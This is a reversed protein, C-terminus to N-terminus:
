WAAIVAQSLEKHGLANPHLYDAMERATGLMYKRTDFIRVNLGDGHLLNASNRIVQIYVWCLPDHQTCPGEAGKYYQFPITGALVTPMQGKQKGTPAGVAVIGTGEAGESTQEFTVTHTGAPVEAIRVFGLARTTGNRTKFQPIDYWALKGEHVGDLAYSFTSMSGSEIEPWAYIPGAVATSITFTVTAGRERTRWVKWNDSDDWDVAGEHKVGPDGAMVKFERPVALWSLVGRLCQNYVVAHLQPDLHHIDNTGILVTSYSNTKLSPGADHAAIQATAIDCAGDGAIGFDEFQMVQEHSAVLYPYAQKVPDSLLFGHTISDGFARYDVTSHVITQPDPTSGGSGPGGSAAGDPTRLFENRGGCGAATVALALSLIPM